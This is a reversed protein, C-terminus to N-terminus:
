MRNMAIVSKVMQFYECFLFELTFEFTASTRKRGGQNQWHTCRYVCLKIKSESVSFISRTSSRKSFSMKFTACAIRHLNMM